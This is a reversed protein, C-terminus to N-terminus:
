RNARWAAVTALWKFWYTGAIPGSEEGHTRDYVHWPKGDVAYRERYRGANANWHRLEGSTESLRMDLTVDAIRTIRKM